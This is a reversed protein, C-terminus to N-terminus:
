SFFISFSSFVFSNRSPTPYLYSVLLSFVSNSFDSRFWNIIFRNSLFWWAHLSFPHHHVATSDFWRLLWKGFTMAPREWCGNWCTLGNPEVKMLYVQYRTRPKCRKYTDCKFEAWRLKPTRIDTLPEITRRMRIQEVSKNKVLKM